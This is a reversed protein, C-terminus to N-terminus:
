AHVPNQVPEKFPTMLSIPAALCPYGGDGVICWGHPPYLRNVYLSSWWLVRANHVSGLLGTYTNLFHGKHDCVVQLQISYFLKRNVYDEKNAAPPKIRIHTEDISGAVRCFVHSGALHAFGEGIGELEDAAPLHVVRKMISIISGAVRHVVDHVTTIPVDFAGSVVRYSTASVLWYLYIGVELDGAM